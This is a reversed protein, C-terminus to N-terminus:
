DNEKEKKRKKECSRPSNHDNKKLIKIKIMHNNGEM